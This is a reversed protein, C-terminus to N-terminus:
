VEPLNDSCRTCAERTRTTVSSANMRIALLPWSQGLTVPRRNALKTQVAVATLVQLRWPLWGRCPRAGRSFVM